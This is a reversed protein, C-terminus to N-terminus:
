VYSFGGSLPNTGRANAVQSLEDTVKRGNLYVDTGKNLIRILLDNQARLLANQESNAMAVGYSIGQVIQNQNAVATRNGISGVYEPKGNENALFYDGRTPFGGTAYGSVSISSIDSSASKKADKIGKNVSVVIAATGAAIAVAAIGMTLASQVAGVAIALATLAVVAM